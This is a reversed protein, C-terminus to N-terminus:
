QKNKLRSYLIKHVADSLKPLNWYIETVEAKNGPTCAGQGVVFVWYHLLFSPFGGKATEKRWGFLNLPLNSTASDTISGSIEQLPAKGGAGGRVENLDNECPKM